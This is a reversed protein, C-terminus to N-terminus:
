SCHGPQLPWASAAIGGRDDPLYWTRMGLGDGPRGVVSAASFNRSAPRGNLDIGSGRGAAVAPLGGTFLARTRYEAFELARGVGRTTADVRTLLVATRARRSLTRTLLTTM